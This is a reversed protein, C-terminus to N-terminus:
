AFSSWHRSPPVTRDDHAATEDAQLHDFIEAMAAHLDRKQFFEALDHRRGIGFHGGREHLFKALLADIHMQIAAHGAELLAFFSVITTLVSFSSRNAASRTMRAMPTFGSTCSAFFAPNSIPVVPPM